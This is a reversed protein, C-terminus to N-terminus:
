FEISDRYMNEMEELFNWALFLFLKNEKIVLIYIRKKM